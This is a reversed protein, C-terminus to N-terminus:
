HPQDPHMFARPMARPAAPRLTVDPGCAHQLGVHRIMPSIPVNFYTYHDSTSFETSGLSCHADEAETCIKYESGPAMSNNYFVEYKHHHYGHQDGRPLRPFIDDRKVIRYSYTLLENHREAYLQDGTRPQGFTMVLTRRPNYLNEAAIEHAAISAMSGGVSHGTLLLGDYLDRRKKLEEFLDGMGGNWVAQYANYDYKNVSGNGRVPVKEHHLQAYQHRFVQDLETLGRFVLAIARRRKSVAIYGGCRDLGAGDCPVDFERVVDYPSYLFTLCTAKFGGSPKYAAVSLAFAERTFREKYYKVAADCKEDANSAACLLCLALPIWNLKM